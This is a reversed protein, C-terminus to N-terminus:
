LTSNTVKTAFKRPTDDFIATDMDFGPKSRCGCRTHNTFTIRDINQFQQYQRSNMGSSKMM